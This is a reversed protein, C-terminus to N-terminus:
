LDNILELLRQYSTFGSGENIHGGDHEVILETNLLKTLRKGEELEIFPDNDSNIVFFRGSKANIKEWDFDRDVFDRIEPIGLDKAFGAVLFAAKVKENEGFTELLRLIAPCGLSHGILIWDEDFEKVNERVAALWQELKPYNTDPFDPAIIQFGSASLQDALWGRWCARSDGGWCHFIFAKM